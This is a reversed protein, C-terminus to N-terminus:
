VYDRTSGITAPISARELCASVRFSKKPEIPKSSSNQINKKPKVM